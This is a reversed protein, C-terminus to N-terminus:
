RGLRAICARAPIWRNRGQRTEAILTATRRYADGFDTESQEADFKLRSLNEVTIGTRLSVVNLGDALDIGSKLFATFASVSLAGAIVAGAKRFGSAISGSARGAERDLDRLADRAEDINGRDLATRIRVLVDDAM